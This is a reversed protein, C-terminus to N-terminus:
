KEDKTKKRLVVKGDKLFLPYDDPELEPFVEAKRLTKYVDSTSILDDNPKMISNYTHLPDKQIERIDNQVKEIKNLISYLLMQNEDESSLNGSNDLEARGIKLLKIISNVGKSHDETSKIGEKIKEIDKLVERYYLNKGYDITNFNGIDFIRPTGEEQVLVVPLDFAQRIGLEFLVNPNRTSLDCIAMPANVIDEIIGVQIMNSSKNDDARKAIYGAKEIAPKFIDEYVQKFHDPPYIPLEGIPMIVFCIKKDNMSTIGKEM